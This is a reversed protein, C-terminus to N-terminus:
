RDWIDQQRETILPIDDLNPQKLNMGTIESIWQLHNVVRTYVGYKYPVGCGTQGFSAVGTLYWRGEGGQCM